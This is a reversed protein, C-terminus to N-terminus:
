NTILDTNGVIEYKRKKFITPTVWEAIKITKRKLTLAPNKSYVM